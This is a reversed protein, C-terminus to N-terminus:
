PRGEYDSIDVEQDFLRESYREEDQRARRLMDRALQLHQIIHPVAFAAKSSQLLPRTGTLDDVVDALAIIADDFQKM